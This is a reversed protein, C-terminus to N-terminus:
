LEQVMVPLFRGAVSSERYAFTRAGMHRYFSEANPDAVVMLRQGGLDCAVARAYQYLDRGLGMGIASPDVFLWDLEIDGHQADEQDWPQLAFFGGIHGDFEAVYAFHDGFYSETMHENLLTEVYDMFSENYGWHRKSRMTLARLEAAEYPLARRMTWLVTSLTTPQM